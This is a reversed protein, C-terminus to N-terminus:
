MWNRTIITLETENRTFRFYIWFCFLSLINKSQNDCHPVEMGNENMNRTYGKLFMNQFSLREKCSIKTEINKKIGQNKIVTYWDYQYETASNLRFKHYAKKNVQLDDFIYVFLSFYWAKYCILSYTKIWKIVVRVYIAALFSSM